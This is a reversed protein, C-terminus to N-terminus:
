ASLNLSTRLALVTLTGPLNAPVVTPTNFFANNLLNALNQAVTTNYPGGSGFDKWAEQLQDNLPILQGPVSQALWKHLVDDLTPEPTIIAARAAPMLADKLAVTQTQIHTTISSKSISSWVVFKKPDWGCGDAPGSPPPLTVHQPEPLRACTGQDRIGYVVALQQGAPLNSIPQPDVITGFADILDDTLPGVRFPAKHESTPQFPKAKASKKTQTM